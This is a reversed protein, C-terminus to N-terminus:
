LVMEPMALLDLKILLIIILIMAMLIVSINLVNYMIQHDVNKFTLIRNMGIFFAILTYLLAFIVVAVGIYKSFISLVPYLVVVGVILPLMSLNSIMVYSGLPVGKSNLFSSAYYVLSAVCIAIGSVVLAIIMFEIYNASQFLFAPNFQIKSAGTVVNSTRVFSGVLIRVVFCVVLTVITIWGTIMYSKSASRYKKANNIITTGPRLTMGMIMGILSFLNAKVNKIDINQEVFEEQVPAVPNVPIPNTGNNLPDYYQEQSDDIVEGFGEKDSDIKKKVTAAVSSAQEDMRSQMHAGKPMVIHSSDQQGSGSYDEYRTGNNGSNYDSVNNYNNVNNVGNGGYSNNYGNNVNTVNNNSNDFNNYNNSASTPRYVQGQNFQSMDFNVYKGNGRRNRNNGNKNSNSGNKVINFLGM